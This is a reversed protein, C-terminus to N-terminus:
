KYTSHQMLLPQYLAERFSWCWQCWSLGWSSRSILCHQVPGAPSSKVTLPGPSPRNNISLSERERRRKKDLVHFRPEWRPLRDEGLNGRSEGFQGVAGRSVWYLIFFANRGVWSFTVWFVSVCNCYTDLFLSVELGCPLKFHSSHRKKNEGNKKLQVLSTM